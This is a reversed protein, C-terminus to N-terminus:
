LCSLGQAYPIGDLPVEGIQEGTNDDFVLITVGAEGTLVFLRSDVVGLGHVWGDHGELPLVAFLLDEDLDWLEVSSTSHWAGYLIDGHTTFRTAQPDIDLIDHETENPVDEFSQYRRWPGPGYPEVLLDAWVDVVTQCANETRTVAGTILDVSAVTHDDAGNCLYMSEFEWAITTADIPDSATVVPCWQGSDMGVVYVSSDVLFICRASEDELNPCPLDPELATSDGVTSATDTTGASTAPDPVVGTTDANTTVSSGDDGSTGPEPAGSESTGGNDATGGNEDVVIRPGCATLVITAIGIWRM